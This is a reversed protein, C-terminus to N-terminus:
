GWPVIALGREVPAPSREYFVDGTDDRKWMMVFEDVDPDREPPKQPNKRIMWDYDYVFGARKAIRILLGRFDECGYKGSRRLNHIQACHILAVRGPKMVRLLGKFFFSLHIKGERNVDESNGLDEMSDSYAFTSPFPPSCIEMDVSKPPMETLMHPICDGHFLQWEQSPELLEGLAFASLPDAQSRM